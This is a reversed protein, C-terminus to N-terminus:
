LLFDMYLLDILSRTKMMMKKLDYCGFYDLFLDFYETTQSYDKLELYVLLLCPSSMSYNFRHWYEM